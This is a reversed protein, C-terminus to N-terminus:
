VHSVGEFSDMFPVGLKRLLVFADKDNRTSTVVSIDMGYCRGVNSYSVEPFIIHEKIGISLNGKGDFSKISIGSFNRSRPLAIFLLRELFHFARVGRITAKCGIKMGERIKFSSVSKRATTLCPKQGAIRSVDDVIKEAVGSDVIGFGVNLSIKVIKPICMVNSYGLEKKFFSFAIDEYEEFLM